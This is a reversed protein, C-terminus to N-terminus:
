KACYRRSFAESCELFGIEAKKTGGPPGTGWELKEAGSGIKADPEENPIILDVEGIPGHPISETGSL